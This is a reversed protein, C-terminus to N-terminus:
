YHQKFGDSHTNKLATVHTNLDNYIHQKHAILFLYPRPHMSCAKNGGRIQVRKPSSFILVPIKLEPAFICFYNSIHLNQPVFLSTKQWFIRMKKCMDSFLQLKAACLNLYILSRSNSAMNLIPRCCLWRLSTSCCRRSLWGSM